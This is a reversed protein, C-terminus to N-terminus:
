PSEGNSNTVTEEASPHIDSQAIIPSTHQIGNDGIKATTLVGGNRAVLIHTCYKSGIDNLNTHKSFETPLLADM